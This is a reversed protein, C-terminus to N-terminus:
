DDLRDNKDNKEDGLLVEMDDPPSNDPFGAEKVYYIRENRDAKTGSVGEGMDEPNKGTLSPAVEEKNITINKDDQKHYTIIEGKDQIRETNIDELRTVISEVTENPEKLFYSTSFTEDSDAPPDFVDDNIHKQVYTCKNCSVTKACVYIETADPFCKRM